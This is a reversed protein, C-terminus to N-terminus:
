LLTHAIVVEKGEDKMMIKREQEQSSEATHTFLVSM